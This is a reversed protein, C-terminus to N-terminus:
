RDVESVMIDLSGVITAVDSLQCNKLIDPFLNLAQFSPTRIKLRDPCKGGTSRIYIGFIGRPSEVAAYTEGAPVKLDQTPVRYPGQELQNLAQQVIYIPLACTQVGTM